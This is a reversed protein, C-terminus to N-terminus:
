ALLENSIHDQLYFYNLNPLILILSLSSYIEVGFQDQALPYRICPYPKWSTKEFVFSWSCDTSTNMPEYSPPLCDEYFSFLNELFCVWMLGLAIGKIIWNEFHNSLGQRLTQILNVLSNHRCSSLALSEMYVFFKLEMMNMQDFALCLSKLLSSVLYSLFLKSFLLRCLLCRVM